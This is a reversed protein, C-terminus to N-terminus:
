PNPQRLLMQEDLFKAQAAKCWKLAGYVSLCTEPYGCRQFMTYCAAVVTVGGSSVNCDTSHHKFDALRLQM